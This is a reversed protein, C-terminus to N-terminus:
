SPKGGKNSYAFCGIASAYAAADSANLGHRLIKFIVAGTFALMVVDGDIDLMSQVWDWYLKIKDLM